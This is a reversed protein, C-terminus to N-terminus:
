ALAVKQADSISNWKNGLEDLITDMTKLDGNATFIHVGVAELAQSYKTLTVDDDLTEGLSLSELRGFITKFATGVTDASQRTQAVVTAVATAAYDYSLKVTDAV